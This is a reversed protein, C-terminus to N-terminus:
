RSCPADYWVEETIADAQSVTTPSIKINWENVFAPIYNVLELAYDSPIVFARQGNFTKRVSVDLLLDDKVHNVFDFMMLKFCLNYRKLTVFVDSETGRNVLKIKLEDNKFWKTNGNEKELHM